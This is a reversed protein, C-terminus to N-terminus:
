YRRCNGTLYNLRSFVNICPCYGPETGLVTHDGSCWFDGLVSGFVAPYLGCVLLYSSCRGEAIRWRKMEGVKKEKKLVGVTSTEDQAIEFLM